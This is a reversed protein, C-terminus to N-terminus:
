TKQRDPIKQERFTLKENNILYKDHNVVMKRSVLLRESLSETWNMSFNTIEKLYKFTKEGEFM